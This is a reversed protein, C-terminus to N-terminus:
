YISDKYKLIFEESLETNPIIYFGVQQGIELFEDLSKRLTSNYLIKKGNPIDRHQLCSFVVHSFPIDGMRVIANAKARITQEVRYDYKEWNWTPVECRHWEDSGRERYDINKGHQEYAQMVAYNLMIGVEKLM